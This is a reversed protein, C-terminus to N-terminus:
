LGIRACATPNLWCNDFSDGVAMSPDTQFYYDLMGGRPYRGEMYPARSRRLINRNPDGPMILGERHVKYATYSAGAILMALLVLVAINVSM